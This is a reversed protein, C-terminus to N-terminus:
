TRCCCGRSLLSFLWARQRVRVTSGREIFFPWAYGLHLSPVAAVPNYFRGLLESSLNVPGDETVTDVVGSLALRPPAVPYLVYVVLAFATMLVLATRVLPFADRRRRHLWVLVGVTAAVHLGPYLVALVHPLLPVAEAFRQMARESGLGVNQEFRVVQLAHDVAAELDQHRFGRVIEYAIYLMALAAIEQWGANTRRIGRLM